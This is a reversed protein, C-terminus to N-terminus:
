SRHELVIPRRAQRTGTRRPSGPTTWPKPPGSCKHSNRDMVSTLRLSMTPSHIKRPPPRKHPRHVITIVTRANQHRSCPPKPTRPTSQIGPLARFWGENGRAMTSRLQCTSTRHYGIGLHPACALVCVCVSLFDFM